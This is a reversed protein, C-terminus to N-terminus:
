GFVACGSGTVPYGRTSNACQDNEDAVGDRDADAIQPIPTPTRQQNNPRTAATEPVVDAVMERADTM